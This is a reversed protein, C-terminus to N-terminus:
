SSSLPGHVDSRWNDNGDAPEVGTPGAPEGLASEECCRKHYRQAGEAGRHRLEDSSLTNEEADTTTKCVRRTHQINILPKHLPLAHSTLALRIADRITRRLEKDQLPVVRFSTLGDDTFLFYVSKERVM